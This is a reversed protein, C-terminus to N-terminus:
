FVGSLSDHLIHTWYTTGGRQCFLLPGSVPDSIVSCNMGYVEKIREETIVESPMEESVLRGERLAFIYDAYRASLSIDHLVMVITTGKRRNLDTLLDLIEVQCTIDLYTTPKDLLLIDTNQALAMAIWVRQRQGGSLEDLRRDAVVIGEPVVPSQTLLGLVRGLRKSPFSGISRKDLTISDSAPKLPRAITKLLTPKGCAIAGLIVSIKNAPISLASPTSSAAIAIPTNNELVIASRNQVAPLTGLRPDDQLTKILTENGYAIIIDLDQLQDLNEACIEVSFEDSTGELEELYGPLTLGLDTLYAARPDATLYVYFKGLGTPTFYM